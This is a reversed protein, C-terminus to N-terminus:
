RGGITQVKSMKNFFGTLRSFRWPTATYIKAKGMNTEIIIKDRMKFKSYTYSDAVKEKPITTAVRFIGFKRKLIAVHFFIFITKSWPYCLTMKDYNGLKPNM